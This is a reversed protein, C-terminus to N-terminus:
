DTFPIDSLRGDPRGVIERAMLLFSNAFAEMSHRSFRSLPFCLEGVIDNGRDNLLIVPDDDRDMIRMIPHEFAIPSCDLIPEVGDSDVLDSNFVNPIWNFATNSAVEPRPLRSELYCYDNREYAVCYANTVRKLLDIFSDGEVVSIHPYLVSAVYGVTRELEAGFRGDGQYQIIGDPVQCWRLVAAGYITFAVMPLTTKHARCLERLARDLEQGVKISIAGWGTGGERERARDPPFRVPRVQMVEQWFGSNREARLKQTRQQWAVYDSFQCSVAPLRIEGGKTEQEYAALIEQLLISISYGDSILHEAAMLLCHETEGLRFLMAAFLPETTVCVPQALFEEIRRQLENQRSGDMVAALDSWQLEFNVSPSVEQIPTGDSVVIRTRLADHRRVVEKLCKQLVDVNLRGRLRTATAVQRIGPRDRLRYLNWHALQSFSLPLRHARPGTPSENILEGKRAELYGVIQDKVARLETIEEPSLAGRPARFALRGQEIWLRAGKREVNDIIDAVKRRSSEM